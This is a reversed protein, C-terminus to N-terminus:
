FKLRKITGFILEIKNTDVGFDRQPITNAQPSVEQMDNVTSQCVEARHGHQGGSSAFTIYVSM